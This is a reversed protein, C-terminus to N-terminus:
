YLVDGHQENNSRCEDSLIYLGVMYRTYGSWSCFVGEEISM